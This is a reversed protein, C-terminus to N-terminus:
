YIFVGIHAGQAIAFGTTREFPSREDM